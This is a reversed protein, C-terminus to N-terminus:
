SDEIPVAKGLDRLTEIYVEMAEQAMQAAEKAGKGFTSCGPLSPVSAIYVGDEPGRKYRRGIHNAPGEEEPTDLWKHSRRHCVRGVPSMKLKAILDAPLVIRGMEDLTATSL